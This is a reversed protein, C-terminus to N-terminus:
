PKYFYWVHNYVYSPWNFGLQMPGTEVMRYGLQVLNNFILNLSSNHGISNQNIHPIVQVSTIGQPNTVLVSDFTPAGALGDFRETVIYMGSQSFSNLSFTLSFLILYNKM